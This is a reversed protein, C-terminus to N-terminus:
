NIQNSQGKNKVKSYRSMEQKVVCDLLPPFSTQLSLLQGSLTRTSGEFINYCAAASPYDFSNVAVTIM